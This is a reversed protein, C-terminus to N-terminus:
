LAQRLRERRQKWHPHTEWYQRLTKQTLQIGLIWPHRSITSSRGKYLTQMKKMLSFAGELLFDAKKMLAIAGRDAELEMAESYGLRLWHAFMRAWASPAELPSGRFKQQMWWVRLQVWAHKREIHVLEHALVWALEADDHKSDTLRLLGTTILIYGGPVAFANAMTSPVVYFRYTLEKRKTFRSLRAGVRRVRKTLKHENPLWRIHKLIRRGLRREDEVTAPIPTSLTELMARTTRGGVQMVGHLSPQEQSGEWVFLGLVALSGLLLVGLMVRQLIVANQESSDKAVVSDEVGQSDDSVASPM